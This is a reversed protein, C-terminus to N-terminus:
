EHVVIVYLRPDTREIYYLTVPSSGIDKDIKVDQEVTRNIM